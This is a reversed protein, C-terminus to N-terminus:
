KREERRSKSVEAKMYRSSSGLASRNFTLVIPLMVGLVLLALLYELLTIGYFEFKNFLEFVFSFSGIVFEIVSEM